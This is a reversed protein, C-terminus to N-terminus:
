VRSERQALTAESGSLPNGLGRENNYRLQERLKAISYYKTTQHSSAGLSPSVQNNPTLGPRLIWLFTDFACL